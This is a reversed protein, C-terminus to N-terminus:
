SYMGRTKAELKNTAQGPVLNKLEGVSDITKKPPGIKKIKRWGVLALVAALALMFLFVILFAAWPALWVSLLAALFFFFFFSAYLAIAGAVTFLGGGLAGKKAEGALETKALELEARFLSSMQATANSVLDGISGEGARTSDVDSLPISDVRPNFDQPGDTFLGKNSM